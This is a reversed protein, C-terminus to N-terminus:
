PSSSNTPQATSGAEDGNKKKQEEEKKKKREGKQAYMREDAKRILVFSLVGDTPAEAIGYSLSVDFLPFNREIESKILKIREEIQRPPCDKAIVVFEDGGMRAVVDGDRLYKRLLKSIDQLLSDGASHGMKDNVHKFNDLDIYAVCINEVKGRQLSELEQKLYSLAFARNYLQTLPDKVASTIVEEIYRSFYNTYTYLFALSALYVFFAQRLTLVDYPSYFIEPLPLGKISKKLLVAFLYFLLLMSWILAQRPKALFFAVIPFLFIWFIGTGYIGGTRILIILTVFLLSLFITAALRYNDFFWLILLNLTVFTAMLLEFAGLWRINYLINYLGFYFLFFIGIFSFIILVRKRLELERLELM